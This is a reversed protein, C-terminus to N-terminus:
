PAREKVHFVVIKGFRGAEEDVRVEEFGLSYLYQIDSKIVPLRIPDGLRTHMGHRITESSLQLNGDLDIGEIRAGDTLKSLDPKVSHRCGFTMLFFIVVLVSSNKM